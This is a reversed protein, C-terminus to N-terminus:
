GMITKRDIIEPPCVPDDEGRACIVQRGRRGTDVLATNPPTRELLLKYTRRRDAGLLLGGGVTLVVVVTVFTLSVWPSPPTGSDSTTAALARLVIEIVTFM